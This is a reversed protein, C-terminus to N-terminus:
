PQFIQIRYFRAGPYTAVGGAANTIPLDTIDTWSVPDLPNTSSQISLTSGAAGPISLFPTDNSYALTLMPPIGQVPFESTSANGSASGGTVGSSGGSSGGGIMGIAFFNTNSNAGGSTSGAVGGATSEGAGPATPPLVAAPNTYCVENSFPSETGDSATADVSFYYVTGATLGTVVLNTQTGVALDFIYVGTNTGWFVTYNTITGGASPNWALFPTDNSYALTLMPAIGQVSFESTTGNANTSGDSAGFSGGGSNGSALPNTNSNAGGSTSGAVGGATSEGAGPATPPLVAAPNTYCIENSFASETGDSATADVSFYYVTGPTLGTVVLSTQTGVALDFTYVGTNTGWYVTYNTIT